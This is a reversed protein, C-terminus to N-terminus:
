GDLGIEQIATINRCSHAVQFDPSFHHFKINSYFLRGSVKQFPAVKLNKTILPYYLMESPRSFYLIESFISMSLQLKSNTVKFLTSFESCYDIM